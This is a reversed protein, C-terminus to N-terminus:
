GNVLPVNICRKVSGAGCPTARQVASMRCVLPLHIPVDVVDHARRSIRDAREHRDRTNRPTGVPMEPVMKPAPFPGVPM